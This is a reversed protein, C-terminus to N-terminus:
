KAPKYEATADQGDGTSTLVRKGDGEHLVWEGSNGATPDKWRFKGGEIVVTGAFPSGKLGKVVHEYTGDEHITLTAPFLPSGQADTVFGEWKGVISNLTTAPQAPPLSSACGILIAALLALASSRLRRKM